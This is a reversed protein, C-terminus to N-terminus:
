TTAELNVKASKHDVVLSPLAMVLNLALGQRRKVHECLNM